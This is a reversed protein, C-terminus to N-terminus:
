DINQTVTNLLRCFRLKTFPNNKICIMVIRFEICGRGSCTSNIKKVGEWYNMIEIVTRELSTESIEFLMKKVSLLQLVFILM